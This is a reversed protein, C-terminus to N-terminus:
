AQPPLSMSVVLMGALGVIAILAPARSKVQILAYYAGVVLAVVGVQLFPM